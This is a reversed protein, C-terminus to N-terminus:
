QNYIINKMRNLINRDEGTFINYGCNFHRDINEARLIARERINQDRNRLMEGQLSNDYELSIPNFAM